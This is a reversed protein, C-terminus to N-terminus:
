TYVPLKKLRRIVYQEKWKLNEEAIGLSRHSLLLNQFALTTQERALWDGLCYHNGTGFALHKPNRNKDFKGPNQYISPDRNAAALCLTLTDGKKLSIGRAEHDESVIRGLLHVPGDYRLLEEVIGPVEETKLDKWVGKKILHHLGTSLLSVTTEEGAVFLFICISVLAKKSLPKTRKKNLKVLKNILGEKPPQDVWYSFIEIFEKAAASITVLHELKLYFDLAKVMQEGLNHLRTYDTSSIGLISAMTKAPLKTAFAEIFDFKGVPLQAILTEINVQIINKVNRDDWCSSVFRRIEQHEPPNLLLIFQNIAEAIQSLDIDKQKFYSIGKELWERGNGVVYLSRDKLINSIEHYGTVIIEGTQAQYYPGVSRIKEYMPFPNARNAETLPQWLNM